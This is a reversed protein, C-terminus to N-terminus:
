KRGGVPCSGGTAAQMMAILREAQPKPISSWGRAVEDQLKEITTHGDRYILCPDAGHRLLNAVIREQKAPDAGERLKNNGSLGISQLAYQLPTTDLFDRGNIDIIGTDTLAIAVKTMRESPGDKYQVAKGISTSFSMGWNLFFWYLLCACILAFSYLVRKLNIRISPNM